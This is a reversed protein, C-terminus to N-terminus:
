DLQQLCSDLLLGHDRLRGGLRDALFGLDTELVRGNRCPMREGLARAMGAGGDGLCSGRGILVIRQAGEDMAACILEGVGWSTPMPGGPGSQWAIDARGGAASAEIVATPPDLHDLMGFCSFVPEGLPGTVNLAHLSGGAAGVLDETLNSSAEFRHAPHVQAQRTPQTALATM